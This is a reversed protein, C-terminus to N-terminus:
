VHARGIKDADFGTPVVFCRYVDKRRPVNYLEPMRLVVDPDGLQWEGTQATPEPLDARDGEQAENKYWDLIMRREDETLGFNDKFSGHGEVPKWPPMIKKEIVRRIDEGWQMAAKYSDLAFPAVDGERHCIQCKTQFVRSIERSYTVQAQAAVPALLLLVPLIAKM